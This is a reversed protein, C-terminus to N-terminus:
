LVHRLGQVLDAGVFVEQLRGAYADVLSSDGQHELELTVSLRRQPDRIQSVQEADVCRGHGALDLLEFFQIKHIALGIRFVAPGAADLQGLVTSVRQFAHERGM